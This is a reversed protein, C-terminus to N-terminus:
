EHSLIETVNSQNIKGQTVANFLLELNVQSAEDLTTAKRLIQYGGAQRDIYLADAEERNSVGFVYNEGIDMMGQDFIVQGRDIIVVRDLLNEIDKVQHTSIIATQTEEMNAAVIKRFLSKSPIDLGNTPEDLLLLKCGSSLAFSILYKKRQGYSLKGFQKGTELQFESMLRNMKIHDFRPYFKSYTKTYNLLSTSSPLYHEEPVLHVEKLFDPNRDFPKFGFCNIEGGKPKLLGCLLQLLTSKGAGNKGLLGVINGEPIDWMLKDFLKDGKKYAYSMNNFHIM